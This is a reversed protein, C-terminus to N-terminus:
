LGKARREAIVADPGICRLHEWYGRAVQHPGDHLAREPADLAEGMWAQGAHAYVEDARARSTHGKQLKHAPTCLVIGGVRGTITCTYHFPRCYKADQQNRVKCGLERRARGRRRGQGEVMDSLSDSFFFARRSRSMFSSGVEGSSRAPSPWPAVWTFASSVCEGARVGVGEATGGRRLFGSWIM